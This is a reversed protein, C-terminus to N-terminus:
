LVPKPISASFLKYCNTAKANGEPNLNNRSKEPVTVAETHYKEQETAGPTGIIIAEQVQSM